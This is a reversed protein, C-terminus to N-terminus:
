VIYETDEKITLVEDSMLTEALSLTKPLEYKFYFKMTHIKSEYFIKSHKLDNATIKEKSNVAMELWLWSMVVISMYEMFLNADSLYREYNGKMAFPMLKQLIKQSLQLSSSLEDAYPKLDDYNSALSITRMMEDVLLALAKGNQLTVKRALLDQSQIGTTGEYLSSIRIDRYYQQLSFDTCFGYGGLVQLGNNVSTSGAESPFTKVIPIIIELLLNYKEKEEPNESSHIIDHYKSALLVLSLSGEVIAKQLLLMRRVDPHEIILAQKDSPNKKGTSTLKRGQPRENAYHLSTRYAAMAIAAAGRGVAIRAANMMLFMQALGRNEEGVLWGRCDDSDGFGLHTTCYGRQGMKQFDAVTMVDNYELSGDSTPRNKPVVFLSIGKTGKPAGEIRALVLHVINEAYQHDGGSIFIKQGSIKYFGADTPTAKTVIDSLSSGAQPETLCMTGGWIGSLMNPVYATNLEENGFEIILEAAGQTLGAYGPLHNNAADLIFAAAQHAMFPIQLGGDEYDFSASIVGLEGGKKMMVDVQKHVIVTGDKHYAPTEDMEKFYPYLERDSFDKVSELFLDLSAIDHDKFRDRSLLGELNHIDYLIYKLTELDIYKKSM